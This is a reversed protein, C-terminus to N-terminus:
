LAMHHTQQIASATADAIDDIGLKRPKGKDRRGIYRLQYSKNAFACSFLFQIMVVLVLGGFVRTEAKFRRVLDKKKLSKLIVNNGGRVLINKSIYRYM